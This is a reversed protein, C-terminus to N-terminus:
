KTFTLILTMGLDLKWVLLIAHMKKNTGTTKHTRKNNREATYKIIWNRVKGYSVSFFNIEPELNSVRQSKNEYVIRNKWSFAFVSGPLRFEQKVDRLISVSIINNNNFIHLGTIIIIKCSLKNNVRRWPPIVFTIRLNNVNSKHSHQQNHGNGRQTASSVDQAHTHTRTYCKAPTCLIKISQKLWIAKFELSAWVATLTSAVRPGGGGGNMCVCLCVRNSM